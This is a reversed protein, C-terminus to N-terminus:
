RGGEEMGVEDLVRVLGRGCGGEIEQGDRGVVVALGENLGNRLHAVRGFPCRAVSRWQLRFPPGAPWLLAATWPPAPVDDDAASSSSSPASAM